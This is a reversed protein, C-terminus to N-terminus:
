STNINVADFDDLNNLSYVKEKSLTYFRGKITFEYINGDSGFRYQLYTLSNGTPKLQWTNQLM